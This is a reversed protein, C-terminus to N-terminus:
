TVLTDNQLRDLERKRRRLFSEYIKEGPRLKGTRKFYRYCAVCLNRAHVKDLRCHACRDLGPRLTATDDKKRRGM